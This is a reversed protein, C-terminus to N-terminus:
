EGAKPEGVLERRIEIIEKINNPDTLVKIIYEQRKEENLKDPINRLQDVLQSDTVKKHQQENAIYGNSTLVSFSLTAITIILTSILESSVNVFISSKEEEMKKVTRNRRNGQPYLRPLLEFIEKKIAIEEESLNGFARNEYKQVIDTGYFNYFNFLLEALSSYSEKLEAENCLFSTTVQEVTFNTM